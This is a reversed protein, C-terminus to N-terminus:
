NGEIQRANRVESFRKRLTQRQEDTLSGDQKMEQLRQRFRQRIKERRDSASQGTVEGKATSQKSATISPTGYLVLHLFNSDSFNGRKGMLNEAIGTAQRVVVMKKSPILYLRQYGAGAAMAVDNGIGDGPQFDNNATLVRISSRLQPDIPKNLWWTLGYMPNAKTGQFLVEFREPAILQKGQFNGKHLVFEGFKAWETASLQAGQPMRPMGDADARWHTIRMGIPNFVRRKLYDLETENSKKLKRRMLEGFIQFPEAGYQFLEGPAATIPASLAKEYTPCNGVTGKIGSSLTLLQRITIASRQPDNKWESITDSVKEDLKLLGDEEAAIAAIGNFSKTGSALEFAKDASSGNPYDQFIVKDDKIILFSVGKNAANYAAAAKYNEAKAESQRQEATSAPEASVINSTSSLAALFILLSLMFSCRLDSQIPM